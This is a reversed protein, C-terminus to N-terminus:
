EYYFGNKLYTNIQENESKTCNFQHDSNGCQIFGSLTGITRTSCLPRGFENINEDVLRFHEVILYPPETIEIFSGNAGVSSSKPMASQVSSIINQFVGGINGTIASGVIGGASTFASMYDTTIQSLQIPVGIMASRMTSYKYPDAVAPDIGDTITFYCNAVGTIYDIYMKGYLYNNSGYQMFTTDIPIEGFPPYYATLRTYPSHNVFNGRDTQPHMPIPLNSKFGVPDTVVYRVVTGTIGTSWYGVKIAKTENGMSSAPFPFWVCSVIYQMPNFFSKFIGVGMESIDSSYFIGDSFLYKLLQMIQDANLAYYSVSGVKLTTANNIIGLVYCGGPISTHYIESSIQLKQISVKCTAPYFSDIIDGNYASSSRIIYSETRGIDYKFSALVDVSLTCEWTGNLFTWDTIYYFRQWYTIQAYNFASPTFEGQVLERTNVRIVPNLFNVEDKLICDATVGQNIPPIATSNPRKTFQYFIVQM